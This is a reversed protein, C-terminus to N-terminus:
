FSACDGSKNKAVLNSGGSTATSNGSCSLNGAVYAKGVFIGGTPTQSLNNNLTANAGITDSVVTCGSFGLNGSCDLNSGIADNALNCGDVNGDCTVNHGVNTGIFLCANANNNCTVNGGILVPNSTSGLAGSVSGATCGTITLNGGVVVGGTFFFTSSCNIATLNGTITTGVEAGFAAGTQVTVNGLVRTGTLVCFDGPPVTVNGYVGGTFSGSCTLDPAAHSLSPVFLIATLVAVALMANKLLSKEM